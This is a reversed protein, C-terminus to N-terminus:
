RFDFRKKKSREKILEFDYLEELQDILHQFDEPKLIVGVTKNNEDYLIHPPPASKKKM